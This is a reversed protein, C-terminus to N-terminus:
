NRMVAAIPCSEKDQSIETETSPPRVVPAIRFPAEGRKAAGLSQRLCEMVRDFRLGSRRPGSPAFAQDSGRCGIKSGRPSRTERAAFWFADRTRRRTRRVAFM